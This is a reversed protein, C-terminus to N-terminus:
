QRSSQRGPDKIKAHYINQLGSTSQLALDLQSWVQRSKHVERSAGALRALTSQKFLVLTLQVVLVPLQNIKTVSM